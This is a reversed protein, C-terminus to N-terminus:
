NLNEAYGKLFDIPEGNEMCVALCQTLIVRIKCRKKIMEVKEQM